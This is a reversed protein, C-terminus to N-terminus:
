AGKEKPLPQTGCYQCNSDWPTLCEGQGRNTGKAPTGCRLCFASREYVYFMGTEPHGTFRNERQFTNGTYAKSVTKHGWLKCILWKLM